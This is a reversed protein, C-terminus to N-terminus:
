PTAPSARCTGYDKSLKTVLFRRHNPDGKIKKGKVQVRDGTKIVATEGALDYTRQDSENILQLGGPSSVACGKLSRGRHSFHYITIGIVVPIAILGVIIGAKKGGHVLSLPSDSAQASRVTALLLMLTVLSILSRKLMATFRM